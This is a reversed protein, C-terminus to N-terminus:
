SLLLYNKGFTHTLQSKEDHRLQILLDILDNRKFNSKEREHITEWFAGRLYKITSNDFFTLKLLPVLSPIFFYCISKFARYLNFQFLERGVRRFDSDERDFCHANIGFAASTLSDTTYKSCIEKSEVTKGDAVVKKLHNNLDKGAKNFLDFMSKMKGSTFIPTMKMRIERWKPNKVFFIFNAAIPDASEDSVITRDQFYNFDKVLIAKILEPSKVILHPQNFIWIGFYPHKKMKRYLRALCEGIDTRLVTANYFNGFLPIPKIYPVGLREWYNFNRTFLKYLLLIITAVCLLININFQTLFFAM